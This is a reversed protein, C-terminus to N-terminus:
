VGLVRNGLCAAVVLISIERLLHLFRVYFRQGVSHGCIDLLKALLDRAPQAALPHTIAKYFANGGAVNSFTEIRLSM